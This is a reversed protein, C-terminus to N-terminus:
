VIKGFKIIDIAGFTAFVLNKFWPESIVSSINAIYFRYGLTFHYDFSDDNLRYFITRIRIRCFSDNPYYSITRDIKKDRFLYLSGIDFYDEICMRKEELPLKRYEQLFTPYHLGLISTLKINGFVFMKIYRIVHYLIVFFAVMGFFLPM